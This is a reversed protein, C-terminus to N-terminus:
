AWGLWTALSLSILAFILGIVLSRKQITKVVPPPMLDLNHAYAASM